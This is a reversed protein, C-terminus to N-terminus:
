FVHIKVGSRILEDIFYNLKYPSDFKYFINNSVNGKKDFFYRTCSSESYTVHLKLISFDCDKSKYISKVHEAASFVHSLRSYFSDQLVKTDSQVQYSYDIDYQEEQKKIKKQEKKTKSENEKSAEGQIKQVARGIQTEREEEPFQSAWEPIESMRTPFKNKNKDKM